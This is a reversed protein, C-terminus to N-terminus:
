SGTSTLATNNTVTGTRDTSYIYVTDTGLSQSSINSNITNGTGENIFGFSNDGINLTSGNHATVTQGNGKTYVAVAKNTGTNIAGLLLDVNGGTSYIGTGGNGVNVTSTNVVTYGFIGVSNEGATIIGNNTIKDSGQTYIGVSAKKTANDVPNNLTINGNNVIETGSTIIGYGKDGAINGTNTLIGGNNAFLGVLGGTTGTNDVLNVNTKNLMNATSSGEYFIGVGTGTNSGNYKLELTGASVSSGDKVFIGTGQDKVEMGYNSLLNINSKEAYVGIGNVGTVIDSSGTGSLDIKNGFGKSVIGVANDGTMTIKGSNTILGNSAAINTSAHAGAAKNTEGYMGVSNNGNVTITGKNLLELTKDTSAM